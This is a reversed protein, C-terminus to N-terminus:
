RPHRLRIESHANDFGMITDTSPICQTHDFLATHYLERYGMLTDIVNVKNSLLSDCSDYMKRSCTFSTHHHQHERTDELISNEQRISICSSGHETEHACFPFIKSGVMHNTYNNKQDTGSNSSNLLYIRPSLFYLVHNYPNSM